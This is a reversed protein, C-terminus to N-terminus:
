RSLFDNLRGVAHGAVLSFGTRRTAFHLGSARIKIRREWEPTGILGTLLGLRGIVLPKFMEEMQASLGDHSAFREWIQDCASSCVSSGKMSSLGGTACGRKSRM